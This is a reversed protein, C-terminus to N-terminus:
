LYNRRETRYLGNVDQMIQVRLNRKDEPIQELLDMANKTNDDKPNYPVNQAVLGSQSRRAPPKAVGYYGIKIM